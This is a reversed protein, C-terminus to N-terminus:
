YWLRPWPEWFPQTCERRAEAPTKGIDRLQHEDLEGLVRRTRGRELLVGIHSRAMELTFRRVFMPAVNTMLM